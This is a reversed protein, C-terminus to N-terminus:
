VGLAAGLLIRWSIQQAVGLMVSALDVQLRKSRQAASILRDVLAPREFFRMLRTNLRFPTEFRERCRAQYSSLSAASYDGKQAATEITEAAFQGSELALEIGEGTLPNIFGAADGLLLARQFVVDRVFSGFPLHHGKCKGVARAGRLERQGAATEVFRQLMEPLKFPLKPILDARMGVGVNARGDPLPFIWAYGPLLEREWFFGFAHPRSFSVNEYYARVAFACHEPPFTPAGLSRRVVSPSGDCGLVVDADLTEGGKCRVQAGQESTSVQEVLVGERLQAGARVAHRILHEDLVQRPVVLGRGGFLQQPLEADLLKGGPSSAFFRAMPQTSTTPLGSVGLSELM